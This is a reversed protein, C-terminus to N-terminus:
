KEALLPSFDIRTQKNIRLFNVVERFLCDSNLNNVLSVRLMGDYQLKIVTGLHIVPMARINRVDIGCFVIEVIKDNMNITYIIKGHIANYSCPLLLHSILYQAFSLEMQRNKIALKLRTEYTIGSIEQEKLEKIIRLHAPGAFATVVDNLTIFFSNNGLGSEVLTRAAILFSKALQALTISQGLEQELESASWSCSGDCSLIIQRLVKLASKEVRKQGVAKSKIREALLM